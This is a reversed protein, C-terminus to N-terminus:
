KRVLDKHAREVTVFAEELTILAKEVVKQAHWVGRM